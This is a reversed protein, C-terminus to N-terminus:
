SAFYDRLRVTPVRHSTLFAGVPEEVFQTGSPEPVRPTSIGDLLEQLATPGELAALVFYKAEDSLENDADIADIVVDVLPRDVANDAVPM